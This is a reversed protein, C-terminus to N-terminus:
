DEKPMVPKVRVLEGRKLELAECTKEPIRIVGRGEFKQDTIVKAKCRTTKGRFTEIDVERIEKVNLSSGWRELIESDLQVTDARVMLGGFRDVILQQSPLNIVQEHSEIETDEEQTETESALLPEPSKVEEAEEVVEPEKLTEDIEEQELQPESPAPRFQTRPVIPASKLPAPGVTEQDMSNLVKLVTPLVIGTVTRLFPLDASKSLAMISYMGNVQSVYVKGKDGDIVLDNLGGVSVAKEALDQLSTAARTVSPDVSQGDGAVVTGNDMLIFAKEINPCVNKIEVLATKLATAYLEENMASKEGNKRNSRSYYGPRFAM